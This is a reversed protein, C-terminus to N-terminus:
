GASKVSRRRSIGSQKRRSAHGGINAGFDTSNADSRPLVTRGNADRNYGIEASVGRDHRAPTLQGGTQPVSHPDEDFVHPGHTHDFYYQDVILGCAECATEGSDTVLRGDCEPCESADISQGCSEDFTREYIERLSM